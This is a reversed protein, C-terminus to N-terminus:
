KGGESAPGCRHAEGGRARCRIGGVVNECGMDAMGAEATEADMATLDRLWSRAGENAYRTEEHGHCDCGHQGLLHDVANALVNVIDRLPWNWDSRMLREERKVSAALAREATALREYLDAIANAHKREVDRFADRENTIRAIDDRAEALTAEAKEARAREKGVEVRFDMAHRAENEASARAKDREATVAALSARLRDVETRLAAIQTARTEAVDYWDIDM